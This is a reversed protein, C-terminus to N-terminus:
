RDTCSAIQRGGPYKNKNSYQYAINESVASFFVSRNRKPNDIICVLVVLEGSQVGIAASAGNLFAPNSDHSYRIYLINPTAVLYELEFHVYASASNVGFPVTQWEFRVMNNTYTYRMAFNNNPLVLDDLYAFIAVDGANKLPLKGNDKKNNGGGFRIFQCLPSSVVLDTNM